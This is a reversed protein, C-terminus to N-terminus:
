RAIMKIHIPEEPTSTLIIRDVYTPNIGKYVLPQPKYELNALDNSFM